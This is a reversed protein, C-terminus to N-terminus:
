PIPVGLYVSLMMWVMRDCHMIAAALLSCIAVVESMTLPINDYTKKGYVGVYANYWPGVVAKVHYCVRAYM